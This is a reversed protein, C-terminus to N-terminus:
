KYEIIVIVGQKGAGGARNTNATSLAGGGGSGFGTGDNGAAAAALGAGGGGFQSGAGGGSAGVTGSLRTGNMGPAGGANLDANTAVVGGVGGVTMALATGATQGTGGSGGFATYTTGGNTFTTNGGAGGNGGTNAGATGATGISYSYTGSVSTIWKEFYGGAGGGAAAGVSSNSGSAGGGGGGGGVARIFIKTTGTTPTYTTGSTLVRVNLIVGEVNNTAQAITKNTLTQSAAEGVVNDDSVAASLQALTAALTNNTLDITKNTLTQAIGTGVFTSTADPFAWTRTTSASISSVEFQVKKSTTANDQIIFNDDQVTTAKGSLDLTSALSITPNTSGNTVTIENTTGSTTQDGTNTGSIGLESQMQAISLNTVNATSGTNNGKFTHAPMQALKANTISNDALGGGGTQSFVIATTGLTITGTTTQTWQTFANATGGTVFVTVGAGLESGADADSRRTFVGAVGVAGATTVTYIGNHSQTSEDKILINENLATVHGDITVTGTSNMTITGAGNNYTNAALAATTAYDVNQKYQVGASVADLQGKNVADSASTGDALNVIKNSNVDLNSGSMTLSTNGSVATGTTGYYAFQGATGSNVTGSGSGGLSSLNTWAGANDKFQISGSNNRLGIGSSGSTTGFNLYNSPIAVGNDDIQLHTTRTSNGDDVRSVLFQHGYNLVEFVKLNTGQSPDVLWIRAYGNGNIESSVGGFANTNQFTSTSNDFPTATGIKLTTESNTISVQSAGDFSGSNNYQVQTSSGGPSTSSGGGGFLGNNTAVYLKGDSGVVIMKKTTDNSSYFKAHLSDAEHLGKRLWPDGVQSKAFLSILSFFIILFRKM